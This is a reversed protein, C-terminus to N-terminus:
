ELAFVLERIELLNVDEEGVEFVHQGTARVFFGGASKWDTMRGLKVRDDEHRHSLPYLSPLFCNMALGEWTTLHCSVWLTDFLTQPPAITLERVAGIPLWVYRDHVFVELFPSLFSHTDRFGAFPNSNLTGSPLPLKEIISTYVSEADEILDKSVLDWVQFFAEAYAPMEPMFAPRRGSTFVEERQKEAHVLNRYAQAAVESKLNQAAVTNLHLAAKDWEGLLCLVQFLLTRRNFDGPAAKVEAVLQNRAEALKGARILEKADM